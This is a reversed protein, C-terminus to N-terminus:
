DSMLQPIPESLFFIARILNRRLVCITKLLAVPLLLRRRSVFNERHISGTGRGRNFSVSDSLHDKLIALELLFQHLLLHQFSM